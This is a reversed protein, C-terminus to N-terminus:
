ALAPLTSLVFTEALEKRRLVNKVEVGVVLHIHAMM